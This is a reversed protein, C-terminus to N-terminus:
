ITPFISKPITQILDDLSKANIFKLMQDIEIDTPGIHRKEFSETNM